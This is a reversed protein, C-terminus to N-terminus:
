PALRPISSLPLCEVDAQACQKEIYAIGEASSGGDDVIVQDVGSLLTPETLNKAKDLLLHQVLERLEVQPRFTIPSDLYCLLLRKRAPIQFLWAIQADLQVQRRAIAGLWVNDPARKLVYWDALFNRTRVWATDNPLTNWDPRAEIWDLVRRIQREWNELQGSPLQWQLGPTERVLNLLVFLWEVPVESDLWDVEPVCLVKSAAEERFRKAVHGRDHIDNWGVDGVYLLSGDQRTWPIFIQHAVRAVSTSPM